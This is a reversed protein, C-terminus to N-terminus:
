AYSKKTTIESNVHVMYWKCTSNWFTCTGGGGIDSKTLLKSYGGKERGSYRWKQITGYLFWDM